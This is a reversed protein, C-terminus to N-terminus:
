ELADIVAKEDEDFEDPPDGLWNLDIYNSRTLPVGHKVMFELVPNSGLLRDLAAQSTSLPGGRKQSHSEEQM